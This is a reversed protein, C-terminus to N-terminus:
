IKRTFLLKMVKEYLLRVAEGAQCHTEVISRGQNVATVMHSDFPIRGLFSLGQAIAIM